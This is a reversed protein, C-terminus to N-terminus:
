WGRVIGTLSIGQRLIIRLQEASTPAWIHPDSRSRSPRSLPARLRCATRRGSEVRKAGLDLTRDMRTWAQQVAAIVWDASDPAWIAIRDGPVFRRPLARAAREAAELFQVYTWTRRAAPDRVGDVLALRDPAAKAAERLLQRLTCDRAKEHGGEAPRYSETLLNQEIPM